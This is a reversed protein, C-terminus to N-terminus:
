PSAGKNGWSTYLWYSFWAILFPMIAGIALNIGIMRERWLQLSTVNGNTIKQQAIVTDVKAEVRGLIAGLHGHRENCMATTMPRHDDSNNQNNNDPM